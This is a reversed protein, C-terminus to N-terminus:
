FDTSVALSRWEDLEKAVEDLKGEVLAVCDSGLQLRFPPRDAGTVQRIAEVAKDPDGPQKGGAAGVAELFAGATGAYDAITLEPTRVSMESLFSTRFSGPEVLTVHIGLPTLEDRLAESLGEVAFKSAAYAGRGASAAFGASSGVNLLHGRKQARLTPLVARAVNLLGFVNTDFIARVEDDSIEEVAGFLGYGANNVVVDIRGFEDVGARVAEHADASSTVDLGLALLANGGDPFADALAKPDRATAIVQDGASLAAATLDHGFGRSAGTIFWVSM